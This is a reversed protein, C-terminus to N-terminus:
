WRAEILNTAVMNRRARPMVEKNATVLRKRLPQQLQLAAPQPLSIQQGSSYGRQKLVDITLFGPQAQLQLRLAAPTSHQLIQRDQSLDRLLFGVSGYESAAVQLQRLEAYRLRYKNTWCLVANHSGSRLAQICTWLWQARDAPYAILFNDLQVGHQLLAPAYPLLPPDIWIHNLPQSPQQSPSPESRQAHIPQHALLPMLLRLEGVGSHALLLETLAGSPWGGHLANDLEAFGTALSPKVAIAGTKARWIDARQLLSHLTPDM